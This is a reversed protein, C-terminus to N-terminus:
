PTANKLKVVLSLGGGDDDWGSFAFADLGLAESKRSIWELQLLEAANEHKFSVIGDAGRNAVQIKM